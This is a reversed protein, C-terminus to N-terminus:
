LGLKPFLTLQALRLPPALSRTSYDEMDIPSSTPSAHVLGSHHMKAIADPSDVIDIFIGGHISPPTKSINRFGTLRPSFFDSSSSAGLNHFLKKRRFSTQFEQTLTRKKYRGKKTSRAVLLDKPPHEMLIKLNEQYSSIISSYDNGDVVDRIKVLAKFM